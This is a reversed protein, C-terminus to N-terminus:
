KRLLDLLSLQLTTLYKKITGKCNKISDPRNQSKKKAQKKVLQRFQQQFEKAGELLETRLQAFQRLFPILWEPEYDTNDKFISHIKDGLIYFWEESKDRVTMGRIAINPHSESGYQLRRGSSRTPMDDDM